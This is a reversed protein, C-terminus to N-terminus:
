LAEAAVKAAAEARAKTTETREDFEAKSMYSVQILGTRYYAGGCTAASNDYLARSIEYLSRNLGSGGVFRPPSTQEFQISLLVATEGNSWASTLVTARSVDAELMTRDFQSRDALPTLELFYKAALQKGIESYLPYGDRACGLGSTLRVESLGSEKFVVNLRFKGDFISLGGEAMEIDLGEPIGRKTKLKARKVEPMAELKAKVADPKDGAVLTRWLTAQAEAQTPFLLAAFIITTARIM